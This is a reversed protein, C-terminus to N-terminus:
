LKDPEVRYLQLYQPPYFTMTTDRIQLVQGREEPTIARLFPPAARWSKALTEGLPSPPIPTALVKASNSIILM